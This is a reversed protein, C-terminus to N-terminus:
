TQRLQRSDGPAFEFVANHNSNVAAPLRLRPGTNSGLAFSFEKKRLQEFLLQSSMVRDEEMRLTYVIGNVDQRLHWVDQM